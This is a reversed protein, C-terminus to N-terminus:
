SLPFPNSEERWTQISFEGGSSSLNRLQEDYHVDGNGTIRVSKGVLSGYSDGNGTVKIETQPAYVAGYLDGNGAIKVGDSPGTYTSYLLFDSPTQTNNVIGNGAINVGGDTYIKLSAGDAIIFTAKGTISLNDGTTDTLYIRVDGTITITAADSKGNGSASISEYKYDGASITETSNGSVSLVGSNALGSLEIPISVPDLEEEIDDTESGTVDANPGIDVTGDEGTGADGNVTGHGNLTIAGETGANTGIDGNDDINTGGYVGVASDYSDTSGHGSMFISTDGFAAYTFPSEEGTQLTAEITREVNDVTGTSTALPNAATIDDIDVEYTGSGLNATIFREDANITWGTWDGDNFARLARQVGAEALWFAQNSAIFRTTTRSETISRNLVAGALVALVVIVLFVFLLALGRKNTKM